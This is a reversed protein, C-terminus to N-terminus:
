EFDLPLPKPLKVFREEVLFLLLEEQTKDNLELIEELSYCELIAAYDTLWICRPHVVHSVLFYHPLISDVRSGM